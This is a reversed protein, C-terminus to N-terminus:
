EGLMSKVVPEVAAAFLEGFDDGVCVGGGFIARFAGCPEAEEDCEAARDCGRAFEGPFDDLAGAVLGGVGAGAGAGSDM